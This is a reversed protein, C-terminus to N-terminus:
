HFNSSMWLYKMNAILVFHSVLLSELDFHVEFNVDFSRGLIQFRLPVTPYLSAIGKPLISIM